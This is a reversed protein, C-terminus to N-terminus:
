LFKLSNESVQFSLHNCTCYQAGKVKRRGKFHLDMIPGDIKRECHVAMGMEQGICIILLTIVKAVSTSSVNRKEGEAEYNSTEWGWGHCVHRDNEKVTM